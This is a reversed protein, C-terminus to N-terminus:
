KHWQYLRAKSGLKEEIRLLENYKALRESRTISGVKIQGAGTAVCLDVMTTDETEGSRASVIANYGNKQTLLIADLTETMTGIQNMKILVSNAAGMAVGQQIRFTSTTFLDDGILQIRKGLKSTLKKWGEWDDEACGDEISVIPYRKVWDELFEIFEDADLIKNDASLCYKGNRYFHSSAIDLAIGVEEGPHYGATHIAETLIDLATENSKFAPWFGGEDSVATALGKKEFIKRASFYVRFSIEMAEAFTKAKSPIILYDQIDIINGAHLGGGIIQVMPMPLVYEEEDKLYQYLPVGISTAAAKAVAMSVGLIANAGLRSKNETGDLAIMLEDIERQEYVERGKISQHLVTNVNEVAKYVSKGNFVETGDRLELAEYSGTSAGSPVIARGILGHGLDVEVELTPNGRSDFVQRGHVHEIKM